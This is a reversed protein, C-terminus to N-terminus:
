LTTVDAYNAINSHTIFSFYSNIEIRCKRSSLFSSIMKLFSYRFRHVEQKALLLDHQFVQFGQILRHVICRLERELMATLLTALYLREPLKSNVNRLM